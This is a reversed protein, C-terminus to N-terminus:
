PRDQPAITGARRRNTLDPPRRTTGSPRNRAPLNATSSPSPSPRSASSLMPTLWSSLGTAWCHQRTSAAGAAGARCWRAPTSGPMDLCLATICRRRTLAPRGPRQATPRPAPRGQRNKVGMHRPRDGCARHLRQTLSSSPGRQSSVADVAISSRSTSVTRSIASPQIKGDELAWAPGREIVCQIQLQEIMEWDSWGPCSLEPKRLFRPAAWPDYPFRMTPRGTLQSRGEILGVVNIRRIQYCDLHDRMALVVVIEDNNEPCRSNQTIAIDGPKFRM